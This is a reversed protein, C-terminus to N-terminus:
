ENKLLQEGTMGRQALPRGPQPMSGRKSSGESREPHRVMM